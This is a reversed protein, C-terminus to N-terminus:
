ETLVKYGFYGAVGIAVWGLAGMGTSPAVGEDAGGGRLWKGGDPPPKAQIIPARNAMHAAGMDDALDNLDDMSCAARDFIRIIEHVHARIANPNFISPASKTRMVGWDKIVKDAENFVEQQPITAGGGGTYAEIIKKTKAIQPKLTKDIYKGTAAKWRDSDGEGCISWGCMAPADGHWFELAEFWTKGPDGEFDYDPSFLQGDVNVIDRNTCHGGPRKAM